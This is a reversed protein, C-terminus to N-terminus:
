KNNVNIGLYYIKDVGTLLSVNARLASNKRRKTTPLYKRGLFMVFFAHKFSSPASATFLALLNASVSPLAM